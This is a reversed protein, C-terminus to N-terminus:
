HQDLKRFEESIHDIVNPDALTSTNGLDKREAIDRLLRRMIKGSRTKPLENVFIIKEPVEFRGLKRGIIDNIEARVQDSGPNGNKMIVYGILAQGKIEHDVGIFASEAVHPHSITAGELEATSM